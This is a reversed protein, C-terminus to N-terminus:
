LPKTFFCWKEKGARMTTDNQPWFEEDFTFGQEGMLGKFEDLDM